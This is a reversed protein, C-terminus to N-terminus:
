IFNSLRKVVREVSELRDLCHYEIMTIDNDRQEEDLTEHLVNHLWQALNRLQLRFAYYALLDRHFHIPESQVMRYGNDFVTFDTGIYGMYIFADREPPAIVSAEWDLFTLQGTPSPILNGGWADGHCVVRPVDLQQARKAYDQSRTLFARIQKGRPLVLERLRQLYLADQTSIRELSAVDALLSEDFLRTLSDQPSQQRQSEPIQLTHLAALAQGIRQVLLPSMPYADALTDGRIFTYLAFLFSEHIVCLRGDLTALPLPATIQSLSQRAVLQQLPLSFEMMHRATYQGILTSQDVIKLYYTDHPQAEVRYSYASNGVPIFHVHTVFLHWHERLLERILMDAEALPTKM